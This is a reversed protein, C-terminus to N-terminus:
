AAHESTFSFNYLGRYADWAGICTQLVLRPQGSADFVGTDTPLVQQMSRYTYDFVHGNDTYIRASAGPQITPLRAFVLSQAHGYILTAGNSDNVPVSNNAYFARKADITWKDSGSDYTGAGVSLDISLDSIVLRVPVGSIAPIVKPKLSEKLAMITEHSVAQVIPPRLTVVFFMLGVAFNMGIAFAYPVFNSNARQM